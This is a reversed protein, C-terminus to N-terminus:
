VSLETIPLPIEIEENKIQKTLESVLYAIVDEQKEFTDIHSKWTEVYYTFGDIDGSYTLKMDGEVPQGVCKINTIKM